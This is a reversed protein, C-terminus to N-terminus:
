RGEIYNTRGKMITAMSQDKYKWEYHFLYLYLWAKGFNYKRSLKGGYGVSCLTVCHLAVRAAFTKEVKM